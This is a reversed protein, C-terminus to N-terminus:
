FHNNDQEITRTTLHLSVKEIDDIGEAAKRYQQELDDITMKGNLLAHSIFVEVGIKGELYHLVIKSIQHFGPLHQWKSELQKLIEHRDPLNISPMIREDDEPDVHVTVDTIASINKILNLHVQEGIYHGESVSIEPDVLIHIDVLINGGHLRTRLQHISIVGPVQKTHDTIKALTKEDVGTDILEKIGAIIMKLGMKLILLAIIIAGIADLHRIGVITGIVSLLVIASIYVDSRNDYAKTLLLNSHVKKSKSLTYRYLWEKAAMSLIAVIIVIFEPKEIPKANIILNLTDYIISAGVFLIILAIIIAAITEIRQHGYPHEKDPHRAGAKGAILVLGDSILDAFSHLGDAVLAHSHGISGIIIKVLALLANTIANVISTQKTTQYRTPSFHSM